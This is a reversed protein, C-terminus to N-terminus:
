CFVWDKFLRCEHPCEHPFSYNYNDSEPGCCGYGGVHCYGSPRKTPFPEGGFKKCHFSDHALVSKKVIEYLYISLFIQDAQKDNKYADHFSGTNAIINLVNKAINRDRLTAQGWMGALM